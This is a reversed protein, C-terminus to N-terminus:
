HHAGDATRDDVLVIRDYPAAAVVPAADAPPPTWERGAIRHWVVCLLDDVRCLLAEALHRAPSATAGPPRSAAVACTADVCEVEVEYAVPAARAERITAGSWVQTLDIRFGDANRFSRRRKIRVSRQALPPPNDIVTETRLSIRVPVAIVGDQRAEADVDRVRRKRVFACTSGAAGRTCRMDDDMLVDETVRWAADFETWGGGPAAADCKRVLADFVDADVGGVKAEIEAGRCRNGAEFLTELADLLADSHQARPVLYMVTAPATTTTNTTMTATVHGLPCNM